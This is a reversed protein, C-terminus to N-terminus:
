KREGSRQDPDVEVTMGEEIQDVLQAAGEDGVDIVNTGLELGVGVYEERLVRDEVLREDAGVTQRGVGGDVLEAALAEVGDGAELGFGLDPVGVLDEGEVDRQGAGVFVSAGGAHLDEPDLDQVFTRTDADVVSDVLHLGGEDSAVDLRPYTVM